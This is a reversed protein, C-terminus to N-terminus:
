WELVISISHRQVRDAVDVAGLQAQLLFGAFMVPLFLLSFCNGEPLCKQMGESIVPVQMRFPHMRMASSEEVQPVHTREVCVPM